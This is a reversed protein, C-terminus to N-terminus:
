DAVWGPPPFDPDLGHSYRMRRSSRFRSSHPIEHKSKRVPPFSIVEIEIEDLFDYYHDGHNYSALLSKIAREDTKRSSLIIIDERNRVPFCISGFTSTNERREICVFRFTADTNLAEIHVIKRTGDIPMYSRYRYKVEHAM